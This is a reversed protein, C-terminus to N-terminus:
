LMLQLPDCVTVLFLNKDIHMVDSHLTLNKEELVLDDNVIARKVVQKTMRGQVFATSKGFLDYARCVDKAMLNPLHLFNGDQLLNIVEQYLPYGANDVLEQVAHARAM